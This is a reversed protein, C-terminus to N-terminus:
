IKLEKYKIEFDMRKPAMEPSDLFRQSMDYVLERM